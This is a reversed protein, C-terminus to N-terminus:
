LLTDQIKIVVECLYHAHHLFVLFFDADDVHVLVQSTNQSAWVALKIFVDPTRTQPFSASTKM